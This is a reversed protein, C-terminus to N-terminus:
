GGFCGKEKAKRRQAEKKLKESGHPSHMAEQSLGKGRLLLHSRNGSIKRFLFCLGRIAPVASLIEQPSRSLAWPRTLLSVHLSVWSLALLVPELSVRGGTQLCSSSCAWFNMQLILTLPSKVTSTRAPEPDLVSGNPPPQWM